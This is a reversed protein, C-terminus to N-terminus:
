IKEFNILNWEGKEEKFIVIEKVPFSLESFTEPVIERFDYDLTVHAKFSPVISDNYPGLDVEILENIAMKVKEVLEKFEIEPEVKAYLIRRGKQEFFDLGTFKATFPYIKLEKVTELIKLETNEEKIFFPAVLTLHLNKVPLESSFNDRYFNKIKEVIESDIKIAVFYRSKM